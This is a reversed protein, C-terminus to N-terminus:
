LEYVNESKKKEVQLVFYGSTNGISAGMGYGFILEHDELEVTMMLEFLDSPLSPGPLNSHKKGSIPTKEEIGLYKSLGSILRPNAQHFVFHQFDHISYGHKQSMEKFKSKFDSAYVSGAHMNLHWNSFVSGDDAVAPREWAVPLEPQVQVQVDVITLANPSYEYEKLNSVILTVAGDSFICMGLWKKM